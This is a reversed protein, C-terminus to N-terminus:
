SGDMSPGIDPSGEKKLSFLVAAHFDTKSMWARGMTAPNNGGQALAAQFTNYLYRIVQHTQLIKKNNGM